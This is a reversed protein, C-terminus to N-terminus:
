SIRLHTTTMACCTGYLDRGRGGAVVTAEEAILTWHHTRDRTVVGTCHRRGRTTGGPWVTWVGLLTSLLLPSAKLVYRPSVESMISMCCTVWSTVKSGSRCLFTIILANIGRQASLRVHQQM